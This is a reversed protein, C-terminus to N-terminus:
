GMNTYKNQGSGEVWGNPKQQPSTPMANIAVMSTIYRKCMSKGYNNVGFWLRLWLILKCEMYYEMYTYCSCLPFLFNLESIQFQIFPFSYKFKFSNVCSVVHMERCPMFHSKECGCYFFLVSKQSYITCHALFPAATVCSCAWAIWTYSHKKSVIYPVPSYLM